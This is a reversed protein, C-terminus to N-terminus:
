GMVTVTFPTVDFVSDSATAALCYAEVLSPIAPLSRAPGGNQKQRKDNIPAILIIRSAPAPIRAYKLRIDRGLGTRARMEM